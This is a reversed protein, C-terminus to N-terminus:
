ARRRRALLAAAGLGLAIVTGPEPVVDLRKDTSVLYQGGAALPTKWQFAYGADINNFTEGIGAGAAVLLDNSTFVIRDIAATIAGQESFTPVPVAGNISGNLTVVSDWQRFTSSNVRTVNDNGALPQIDFDNYQFLQLNIGQNGINTVRMQEAISSNTAGGFFMYRIDFRLGDGAHEFRLDLITNGASLTGSVFSMGATSTSVYKGNVTGNRYLWANSFVHDVGGVVWNGLIGQSATDITASGGLGDSMVFIAAQSASAVAAASLLALAKFQIKM